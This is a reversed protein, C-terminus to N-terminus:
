NCGTGKATTLVYADNSAVALPNTIKRNHIDKYVRGTPLTANESATPLSGSNVVSIGNAFQRYWIQPNNPDYTKGGYMEACPPGLSTDYEYHWQEAGYGYGPGNNPATFLFAGQEKGMLYTAISYEEQSATVSQVQDYKDIIGIAVNHSQLWKMWSVTAGFLGSN